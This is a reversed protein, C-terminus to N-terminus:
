PGTDRYILLKLIVALAPKLSWVRILMAEISNVGMVIGKIMGTITVGVISSIKFNSPVKTASNEVEAESLKSVEVTSRRSTLQFLM